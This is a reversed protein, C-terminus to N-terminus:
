GIKVTNLQCVIGEDEDVVSYTIFWPQNTITNNAPTYISLNHLPHVGKWTANQTTSFLLSIVNIGCKWYTYNDKNQTLTGNGVTTSYLTNSVVNNFTTDYTPVNNWTINDSSNYWTISVNMQNNDSVNFNCSMNDNWNLYQPLTYVSNVVPAQNDYIYTRTESTLTYPYGSTSNCTISWNITADVLSINISTTVGSSVSTWNTYGQTTNLFCTIGEDLDIVSFTVNLTENSLTNDAPLYLTLNHFPHIGTVSSNQSTGYFLTSTTVECKWYSYNGLQQTVSGTGVGTTYLQGSTISTFTYDYTPVNNWTINDSSNYWTVSVNFENEDTINFNCNLTDNYRPYQPTIYLQQVVPAQTDQIYIRTESTLDSPYGTTSNCLVNWTYIGDTPIVNFYMAEEYIRGNNDSSCSGWWGNADYSIGYTNWDGDTLRSFWNNNTFVGCSTSDNVNALQKWTGNYCYLYYNQKGHIMARMQLNNSYNLCDSPISYNTPVASSTGIKILWSANITGAPKTYNVYFNTRYPGSLQEYGNSDANEEYSWSSGLAITTNVGSSVNEWSTMGFSSNLACVIGEDFDIVSFTVNLTQNSANNDAPSHLTLNEFPHLGVPSSNLTSNPNVEAFVNCKWYNYDELTETVSGTGSGTTYYTGNSLGTMTYDYTNVNSWSINDTSKYWTISANYTTDFTGSTIFTCNLNDTPTPYQPTINVEDVSITSPAGPLTETYTVVPDGKFKRVWFWHYKRDVENGTSSTCELVPRSGSATWVAAGNDQCSVSLRDFEVGTKDWTKSTFNEDYQSRNSIKHNTLNAKGGFVTMEVVWSNVADAQTNLQEYIGGSGHVGQYRNFGITNGGGIDLDETIYYSPPWYGAQSVMVRNVGHYNFNVYNININNYRYGFSFNDGSINHNLKRFKETAAESGGPNVFETWSSDDYATYYFTNTANETNSVSANNYYVCVYSEASNTTLNMMFWLEDVHLTPQYYQHWYPLETQTHHLVVRKDEEGYLWYTTNDVYSDNILLLISYDNENYNSDIFFCSRNLYGDNWWEPLPGVPETVSVDSPVSYTDLPTTSAFVNDIKTFSNISGSWDRMEIYQFTPTGFDDLQTSLNNVVKINNSSNYIEVGYTHATINWRMLINYWEYANGPGVVVESQGFMTWNHNGANLKEYVVAWHSGGGLIVGNTMGINPQDGVHAGVFDVALWVEGSTVDTNNFYCGGNFTSANCYYGYNSNYASGSDAGALASLLQWGQETGDEFDTKVLFVNSSGDTYINDYCRLNYIDSQGVELTDNNIFYFGRSKVSSNRWEFPHEVNNKYLRAGNLNNLCDGLDSGNITIVENTHNYIDNNTINITYNSYVDSFPPQLGAAQYNYLTSIEDSKLLRSWVGIEDVKGNLGNLGGPETGIYIDNTNNTWDTGSTSGNLTGNIYCTAKSISEDWTLVLHYWTGTSMFPSCVEIWSGGDYYNVSLDGAGNTYFYLSAGKNLLTDPNGVANLNFWLSISYDQSFDLNTVPYSTYNNNSGDYQVAENIIGSVGLTGGNNTGDESGVVDYVTSGSINTNDVTYYHELNDNLNSPLFMGSYNGGEYMYIVDNARGTALWRQNTFDYSIGHMATDNSSLDVVEGLDAWDSYNYKHVTDNGCMVYFDDEVITIGTPGTCVSWNNGTYSWSEDYETIKDSASGVLYWKQSKEHFAIGYPYDEYGSFINGLDTKAHSSINYRLLSDTDIETLYLLEDKVWMGNVRPETLAWFNQQIMYNQGISWNWFNDASQGVAYLEGTLDYWFIDTPEEIPSFAASQNLYSWEVGSVLNSVLVSIILTILILLGKNM